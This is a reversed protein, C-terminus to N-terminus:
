RKRSAKRSTPRRTSAALAESWDQETLLRELKAMPGHLSQRQAQMARWLDGVEGIRGAM